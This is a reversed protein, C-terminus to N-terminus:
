YLVQSLPGFVATFHYANKNKTQSLSVLIYLLVIFILLHFHKRWNFVFLCSGGHAVASSSLLCVPPLQQSAPSPSGTWM